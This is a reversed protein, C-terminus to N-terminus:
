LRNKIVSKKEPTILQLTRSPSAFTLFSCSKAAQISSSILCTPLFHLLSHVFPMFIIAFRNLSETVHEAPCTGPGHIIRKQFSCFCLYIQLSFFHYFNFFIM